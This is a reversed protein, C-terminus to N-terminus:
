GARGPEEEVGIGPTPLHPMLLIKKSYMNKRTLKNYIGPSFSIKLIFLFLKKGLVIKKKTFHDKL